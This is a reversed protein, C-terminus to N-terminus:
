FCWVDMAIGCLLKAEGTEEAPWMFPQVGKNRLLCGELINDGTGTM